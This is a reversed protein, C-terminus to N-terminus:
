TAGEQPSGRFRWPLLADDGAYDIGVRPGREVQSEAMQRGSEFWAPGEVTLPQRNHEGTLALGQCLKAPGDCWRSRDALVRPAPRRGGPGWGRRRRVLALDVEDGCPIAGRILVAQGSGSPGTVVNFNWHMGYLFYIYSVGGPSFMVETRPTRRGGHCHAGREREHYAETEVVTMAIVHGGARSILTNGLLDRAVELVERRFFEVPLVRAEDGSASLSM